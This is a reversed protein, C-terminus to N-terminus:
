IQNAGAFRCKVALQCILTLIESNSLGICNCSCQCQRRFLERCNKKGLNDCMQSSVVCPPMIHFRDSQCQGTCADKDVDPRHNVALIM